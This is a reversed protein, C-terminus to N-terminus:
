QTIIRTWTQRETRTQGYTWFYHFGGTRTRLRIRASLLSRTLNHFNRFVCTVFWESHNLRSSLPKELFNDDHTVGSESQKFAHTQLNLRLYASMTTKPCWKTQSSSQEVRVELNHWTITDDLWTREMIVADM